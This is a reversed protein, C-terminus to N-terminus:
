RSIRPTRSIPSTIHRFQKEGCNVLVNALFDGHCVPNLQVLHLDIDETLDGAPGLTAVVVPFPCLRVAGPAAGEHMAEKHDAQDCVKEFQAPKKIRIAPIRQVVAHVLDPDQM